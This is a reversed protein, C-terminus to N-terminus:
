QCIFAFGRFGATKPTKKHLCLCIFALLILIGTPSLTPSLKKIKLGVTDTRNRQNTAQQTIAVKGYNM